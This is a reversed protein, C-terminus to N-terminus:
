TACSVHQIGPAHARPDNTIVTHYLHEVSYRRVDAATRFRFLSNYRHATPYHPLDDDKGLYERMWSFSGSVDRINPVDTFELPVLCLHPRRWIAM